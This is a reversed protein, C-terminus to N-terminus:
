TPQAAQAPAARQEARSAPAGCSVDRAAEDLARPARIESDKPAVSRRAAPKTAYLVVSKGVLPDLLTELSRTLRPKKMMDWVLFRHYWRVLPFNDNDLGVACKLWWYPSHLAHAHHHGHLDYGHRGLKEELERRRYIRVHGGESHPYKSSIAWCIKEPGWRPVSVALQGGPRLVRTIEDIAADDEHLHELVESVILCDFSADAFPLRYGNGRLVLWPGADTAPSPMQGEGNDMARLSQATGTVEKEGLDLAVAHIGRELRTARIHRGDGCGLDLLRSGPRLGLKELRITLM